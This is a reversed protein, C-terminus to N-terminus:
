LFFRTTFSSEEAEGNSTRRLASFPELSDSFCLKEACRAAFGSFLSRV